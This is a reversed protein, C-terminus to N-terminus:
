PIKWSPDPDFSKIEKALKATDPGLDKQYVVDDHNIIFTTIGSVGYQAPYALLAFGGIMHGKVVYNVAGGAANPGQAKLIRYYYGHYPRPKGKATAYGEAQAAVMLPGLPSEEEGAEVPWYLGNHKGPSSLFQQAYELFGDGNRDKTAYERQADVYARCVEITNLENAGIRRNLIENKGAKTDFRWGTGYKRIPIPFPWEDTGITLVARDDGQTALKHAEDFETIFKDRTQKDAVPDGSSLLPKSDPGLVKLLASSDPSHVAAVLAAVAQEPSTFTTQPLGAASAQSYPGWLALFTLVCLTLGHQWPRDRRATRIRRTM